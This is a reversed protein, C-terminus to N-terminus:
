VVGIDADASIPDRNAGVAIVVKERCMTEEVRTGVQTGCDM